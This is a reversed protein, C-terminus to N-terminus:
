YKSAYQISSFVWNLCSRSGIIIKREKRRDTHRDIKKSIINEITNKHLETITVCILVVNLKAIDENELRLRDDTINRSM